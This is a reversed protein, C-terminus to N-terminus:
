AVALAPNLQQTGTHHVGLHQLAAANVRLLVGAKSEAHAQLPHGHATGPDVVQTQNEVVIDSEQILELSSVLIFSFLFHILSSNTSREETESLSNTSFNVM